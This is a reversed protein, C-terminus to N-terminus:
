PRVLEILRNERSNSSLTSVPRETEASQKAFAATVRPVKSKECVEARETFFARRTGKQLNALLQRLVSTALFM